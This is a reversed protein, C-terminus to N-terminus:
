DVAFRHRRVLGGDVGVCTTLGVFEDASSVGGLSSRVLIAMM